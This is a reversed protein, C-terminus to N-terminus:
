ASVTTWKALVAMLIASWPSSFVTLSTKCQIKKRRSGKGTFKLNFQYIHYIRVYSHVKEQEKKLGSQPGLNELILQFHTM